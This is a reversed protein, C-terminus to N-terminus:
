SSNTRRTKEILDIITANVQFPLAPLTRRATLAYLLYHRWMGTRFKPHFKHGNRTIGNNIKINEPICPDQAYTIFRCSGLSNQALWKGFKEEEELTINGCLNNEKLYKIAQVLLFPSIRRERAWETFFQPYRAYVVPAKTGNRKGGILIPTRGEIKNVQRYLDRLFRPSFGPFAAYLENKTYADRGAIWRVIEGGKINEIVFVFDACSQVPNKEIEAEIRNLAFFLRQKKTQVNKM